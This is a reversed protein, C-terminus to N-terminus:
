VFIYVYMYMCTYIYIYTYLQTYPCAYMYIDDGVLVIICKLGTCFFGM